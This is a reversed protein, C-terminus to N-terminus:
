VVQIKLQVVIDGGAVTTGIQDVDISLLDGELLSTTDFSNQTGYTNGSLIRLRNAQTSNWISVGNVNVDFIIDSGSPGTGATAYAKVITANYPITLRAKNTGSTLITGTALMFTVNSVVMGSYGSNGAVGSYGSVGSGGSYGSVGSAGSHGSYGSAGSGGMGSYGSIGLGSEGSYGSVGSSGSTGSYGSVGSTGSYGSVGSGSYGSTGSVGSTGSYGSVGSGSYGSTGSTGSTGSYGSGGSIGSYGSTGSTGSYGSDGSAGSYGSTGSTGSYGSTGSGSYGSVGSIGSTGSYGSFGSAGSVGSYGSIGYFGSFGSYGSIGIFGSTGSFGSIGKTSPSFGIHDQDSFVSNGVVYNVPISDVGGASTFPAAVTFIHFIEESQESFILIHDGVAITDLFNDLNVGDRDAENVYLFHTSSPTANDYRIYGAAPDSSTSTSFKYLLTFGGTIGRLGTPGTAGASGGFKGALVFNAYSLSNLVSASQKVILYALLTYEKTAPDSVFIENSISLYADDYSSYEHQGYYVYINPTHTYQASLYIRQVTWYDTQVTALGGDGDDWHTPDIDNILSGITFVGPTASRYTYKFSQPTASDDTIVNPNELTDRVNANLRFTEGSARNFKLDAGHATVENGSINIAGIAYYLDHLYAKNDSILAPEAVAMTTTSRNTHILRGIYLKSRMDSPTPPVEQQLVSGDTGVLLYTRACTTRHDDVIGTLDRFYVKTVVPDQPVTNNIIYGYGDSIDFKTTDGNLTLIGGEVVGTGAVNYLLTLDTAFGGRGAADGILGQETASIIEARTTDLLNTCEKSVVIRARLVDWRNYPNFTITVQLASLAEEKTNYCTQGYQISTKNQPAYYTVVQITWKGAPVPLLGTPTDYQIPDIASVPANSNVWEGGSDRHYYTMNTPNETTTTIINPSKKSVIYNTGNDFVQGESRQITLDSGAATYYNGWINFAGFNDVFDQLQNFNDLCWYPENYAERLTVSGDAHDTWGLFIFDRRQENTPAADDLFGVTGTVDIYVGSLETLGIYPDVKSQAGWTVQTMIPNLPDTHNDVIIGTGAAVDVKTGDVGNVTLEGGNILGTSMLNYFNKMLEPPLIGSHGSIGSVGSTGSYGSVGSTGSTGSYGSVGSTGSTGSYGSVGSAGSYGSGGSTGSTGSYGSVGSTGSYGSNGSTGSYGSVGSTGSVGSYGSFGSSGDHGIIGDQGSTGSYGSVGSQGSAGSYGSDGSEGSVGSYGSIGSTGSTGSYGSSGSHGSVSEGSFGSLGSHGSYGSVGSYGSLGQRGPAGALNVDWPSHTGTGTVAGVDVVMAGSVPSYSSVEGSIIHTSNFAVIVFQGITYSLGTGITISLTVGVSELTISNSSVSAYKDGVVGPTGSAGSFGSGGSEGSYGSVGSFGSTGSYGSEGLGSFGSSGSIGRFGSYGSIGRRTLNSQGM